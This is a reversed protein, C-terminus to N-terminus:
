IRLSSLPPSHSFRAEVVAFSVPEIHRSFTQLRRLYARARWSQRKTMTRVLLIGMALGAAAIGIFAGTWRAIDFIEVKPGVWSDAVEVLPAAICWSILIAILLKIGRRKMAAIIDSSM